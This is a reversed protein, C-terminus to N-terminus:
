VGEQNEILLLISESDDGNSVMNFKILDDLMLLTFRAMDWGDLFSLLLWWHDLFLFHRM